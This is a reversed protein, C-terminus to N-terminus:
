HSKVPRTHIISLDGLRRLTDGTWLSLEMCRKGVANCLQTAKSFCSVYSSFKSIKAAKQELKFPIERIGSTYEPQKM